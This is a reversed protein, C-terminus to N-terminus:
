GVIEEVRFDRYFWSRDKAWLRAALTDLPRLEAALSEPRSRPVLLNWYALRGGPRMRRALAGLLHETLEESMYEFIDSLNAKSFAGHPRGSIFRELEDTVVEVRGVLGRLRALNAPRLYSPGTALDGEGGTLFLRVYFNGALPHETCVWTFRRLFYGGVDGEDVHAFQAPDRGTRAMMERGFYWSFKEKFADTDFAERWVAQQAELSPAVLLREVDESSVLGPLHERQFAGFYTELRGEAAVGARLTAENADWFDRAARPLDGRVRRYLRAAEAGASGAGIGLLCCIESHELREIAEIKLALLATQAANMDIATVSRAGALLLALANDGASCISLVDDDPRIGLGEELIDHDEWVRSYRIQDLTMVQAIESRLPQEPAPDDRPPTETM